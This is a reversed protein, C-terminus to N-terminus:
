SSKSETGRLDSISPNTAQTNSRAGGFDITSKQMHDRDHNSTCRQNNILQEKVKSKLLVAQQQVSVVKVVLDSLIQKQIQKDANKVKSPGGCVAGFEM